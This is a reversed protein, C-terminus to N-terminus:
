YIDLILWDGRRKRRPKAKVRVPHLTLLLGAVPGLCGLFAGIAASALAEAAPM